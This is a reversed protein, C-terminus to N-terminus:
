RAGLGRRARVADGARRAPLHLRIGKAVSGVGKAVNGVGRAGSGRRAVVEEQQVPTELVSLLGLLKLLKRQRPEINVMTFFSGSDRIRGRLQVLQGIGSCDLRRLRELNLVVNSPELLTIEDVLEHLEDTDEDFTLRGELDLVVISGSRQVQVKM